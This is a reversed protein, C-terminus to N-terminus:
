PHRLIVFPGPNSFFLLCFRLLLFSYIAFSDPSPPLPYLTRVNGILELSNPVDWLSLVLERFPSIFDSQQFFSLFRCGTWSFPPYPPLFFRRARERVIEPGRCACLIGSSPFLIFVPVDPFRFFAFFFAGYLVLLIPPYSPERYGRSFAPSVRIYGFPHLGCWRKVGLGSSPYGQGPWYSFFPLPPDNRRCPLPPALVPLFPYNHLRSHTTWKFLTPSFFILPFLPILPDTRSECVFAAM